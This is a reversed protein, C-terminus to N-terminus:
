AARRKGTWLAKGVGLLAAGFGWLYPLPWSAKLPTAGLITNAVGGAVLAAILATALLRLLKQTRTM